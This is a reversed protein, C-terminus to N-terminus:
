VDEESLHNGLQLWLFNDGRGLQNGIKKVEKECCKNKYLFLTVVDRWSEVCMVASGDFIPHFQRNGQNLRSRKKGFFDPLQRYSLQNDLYRQNEQGGERLM